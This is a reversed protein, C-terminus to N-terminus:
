KFRRGCVNLLQAQQEPLPGITGFRMKPWSAQSVAVTLARAPTAAHFRGVGFICCRGSLILALKNASVVGSLETHDLCQHGARAATFVNIVNGSAAITGVKNGSQAPQTQLNRAFADFKEVTVTV